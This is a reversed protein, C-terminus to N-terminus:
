WFNAEEKRGKCAIFYDDDKMFEAEM